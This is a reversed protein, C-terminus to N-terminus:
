PASIQNTKSKNLAKSPPPFTIAPTLSYRLDCVFIIKFLCIIIRQTKDYEDQSYSCNLESKSDLAVAPATLFM